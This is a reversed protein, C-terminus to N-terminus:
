LKITFDCENRNRSGVLVICYPYLKKSLFVDPAKSLASACGVADRWIYENVKTNKTCRYFVVKPSITSSKKKDWFCKKKLFDIHQQHKV